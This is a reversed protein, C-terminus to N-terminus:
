STSIAAFALIMVFPNGKVIRASLSLKSPGTLITEKSELVTVVGIGPFNAPLM